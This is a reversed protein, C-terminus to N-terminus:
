PNLQVRYFAAPLSAAAADTFRNAPPTAALNSGINTFPGELAASRQLTYTRGAQSAWEVLFSGDPLSQALTFDPLTTVSGRPDLGAYMKALNSIGDNAASATPSNGLRGFYQLEWADILGNNDSDMGLSLDTRLLQGRTAISVVLNTRTAPLLNLPTGPALTAAITGNVPTRTLVLAQPDPILAPTPTVTRVQLVYSYQGGVDSLNVTAPIPLAGGGPRLTVTTFGNTLRKGLSDTVVGFLVLPPEPVGSARGSPTIASLLVGAAALHFALRGSRITSRFDSMPIAAAVFTSVTPSRKTEDHCLGM